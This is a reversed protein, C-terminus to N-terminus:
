IFIFLNPNVSPVFDSRADSLSRSVLLYTFLLTRKDAAAMMAALTFVNMNLM